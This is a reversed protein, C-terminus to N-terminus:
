QTGYVASLGSSFRTRDRQRQHLQPSGDAGSREAEERAGRYV